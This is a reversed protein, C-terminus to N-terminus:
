FFGCTKFNPTVEEWLFTAVSSGPPIFSQGFREPATWSIGGGGSGRERRLIDLYPAERMRVGDTLCVFM